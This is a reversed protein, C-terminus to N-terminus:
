SRLGRRLYIYPRVGVRGGQLEYKVGVGRGTDVEDDTDAGDDM